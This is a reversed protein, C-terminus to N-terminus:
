SAVHFYKELDQRAQAKYDALAPGNAPDSNLSLVRELMKRADERRGTARYSDALYIMTLSDGPYRKLCDELLRVSLQKNGGKFFPAEYYLRGLIREAGYEMYDPDLKIVKQMEDRVPDILHLGGWIGRNEALLGMNAGAWFHGEPRGPDLAEAKKGAAVGDKLISDQQKDPVHQALYCDYEAIRWWADYSQPHQELEGRLIAIAKRVNDPNERDRYLSDARAIASSLGTEVSSAASTGGVSLLCLALLWALVRGLIRAGALQYPCSRREM